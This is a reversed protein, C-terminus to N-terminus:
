RPPQHIGRIWAEIERWYRLTTGPGHLFDIKREAIEAANSETPWIGLSQEIYWANRISLGAPTERDVICFHHREIISRVTAYPMDEDVAIKAVNAGRAKQRIIRNNREIISM